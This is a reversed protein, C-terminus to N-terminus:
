FQCCRLYESWELGYRAVWRPRWKAYVTDHAALLYSKWDGSDNFQRVMIVPPLHEVVVSCRRFDSLESATVWFVPRYAKAGAHQVLAKRSRTEDAELLTVLVVDREDAAIHQFIDPLPGNWEPKKRLFVM